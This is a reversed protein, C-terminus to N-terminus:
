KRNEIEVFFMKRYYPEKDLLRFVPILLLFVKRFLINVLVNKSMWGRMLFERLKLNFNGKVTIEVKKNLQRVASKIYHLIDIEDPLGLKIQEDAFKYGASRHRLYDDRIKLDHEMSIKGCPVGIVVLRKAVRLMELVAIERKNKPLHELMDVSIVADFSNNPFTLETADGVVRKLLPHFPPEFEKDVGTVPMKLYPAIGLGGSGVELISLALISLAQGKGSLGPRKQCRKIYEVAPLYRMAIQPHWRYWPTFRLAALERLFGGLAGAENSMTKQKRSM